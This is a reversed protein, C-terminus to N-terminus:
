PTLHGCNADMIVEGASRELPAQEGTTEASTVRIPADKAYDGIVGPIRSPLQADASGSGALKSLDFKTAAARPCATACGTLFGIPRRGGGPLRGAIGIPPHRFHM